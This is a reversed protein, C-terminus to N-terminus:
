GYLDWNDEDLDDGAVLRDYSTFFVRTGDASSGAFSANGGATEDDAPGTSVLRTTAGSREYVDWLGDADAPELRDSTDWFVRTGDDSIGGFNVHSAANSLSGVSVLTTNGGASEYVDQKLVDTDASVLAESTQFFIRAGDDSMATFFADLAPDAAALGDTRLSTVGGTREYVDWSSDNDASVMREQTQFFVRAGDASVGALDVNFAGDDFPGTSVHTTTGGTREYVDWSQDSDTPLLAERTQFFVREGDASTDSFDARQVTGVSVLTLAGGSRQYVDDVLDTDEPLLAQDTNFFVKSGDASVGGLYTEHSPGPVSLLTTLSHDARAPAATLAFAALAAIAGAWVNSRRGRGGSAVSSGVAAEM